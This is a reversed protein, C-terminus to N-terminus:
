KIEKKSNDLCKKTRFPEGTVHHADLPEKYNSCYYNTNIIRKTVRLWVCFGIDKDGCGAAGLMNIEQFHGQITKWLPYVVVM